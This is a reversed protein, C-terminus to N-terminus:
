DWPMEAPIHPISYKIESEMKSVAKLRPETGMILEVYLEKGDFFLFTDEEGTWSDICECNDWFYEWQSLASLQEFLYVDM